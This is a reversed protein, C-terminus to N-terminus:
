YLNIKVHNSIRVLQYWINVEVGKALLIRVVEERGREIARSFPTWQENCTSSINVNRDLLLEVLRANGREAAYSLPTRGSSDRTDPAREQLLRVMHDNLGFYAVLHMGCFKQPPDRFLAQSSASAKRDDMLLKLALDGVSQPTDQVDQIHYAWNQAAYEFFANQQLRSELDSETLYGNAFVNYSLYTLCSTAIIDRPVNKFCELDRRQFYEQTTYHVLRIINSDVTVLGACSSVMDKVPCLNTKDLRCTGPEVALAHRLEETTLPRKAWVVWFLVRIALEHIGQEQDRIRNVTDDYAKDLGEEGKEM